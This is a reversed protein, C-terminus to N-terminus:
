KPTRLAELREIREKAAAWCLDTTSAILAEAVVMLAACSDWNSPVPTRAALVHRAHQAAPSLWQDTMLVVTVNQGAATKAFEVVDDQYRRIDLVVLVDRRGMDLLHDRWTDIQGPLHVVNPRVVKLHVGLYRAIPDTFRGGVIFISKEPASFLRAVADFEGPPITALTETINALAADGFKQLLGSGKAAAGEEGEEVSQGPLGDAGIPEHAAKDLPSQLRADLERRLQRQFEPYSEFGLKTVFRLVTPASVAARSAFVAVTELGALPYSALLLHAVKREQATFRDMEARLVTAVSLVKGDTGTGTKPSEAM